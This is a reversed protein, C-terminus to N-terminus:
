RKTRPYFLLFVAAHPNVLVTKGAKTLKMVAPFWPEKLLDEDQEVYEPVLLDLEVYRGGTERQLDPGFSYAEMGEAPQLDNHLAGGYLLLVGGDVGGEGSERLAEAKEEIKRRVLKLSQDADLEGQDDLMARYEDCGVVLLHNKMGLDYARGLLTTVEDETSEPRRTTKQVEKAVQKEVKGCRGSLMWTEVVISTAKGKLAPLLEETFRRTASKVKPGGELEHYEGVAVIDPRGALVQDLAAKASPLVTCPAAGCPSPAGGDPLALLAALLLCTM